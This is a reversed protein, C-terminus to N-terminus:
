AAYEIDAFPASTWKRLIRSGRPNVKSSTRLRELRSVVSNVKMSGGLCIKTMTMSLTLTNNSMSGVLLVSPGPGTIQMRYLSCGFVAINVRGSNKKPSFPLTPM